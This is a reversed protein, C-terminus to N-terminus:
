PWYRQLLYLGVGLAALGGVLYGFLVGIEIPLRRLNQTRVTKYVIAVSACVPLVLWILRHTSLIMPNYFLM